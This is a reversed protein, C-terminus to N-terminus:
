FQPISSPDLDHKYRFTVTKLALIGESAKDMPKIAEKFRASSVVTGLHGSSDIIVGVGGPVTVGSIGAIYANAHTGTAGIRIKRTEGMTGANGIYINSDGHTLNIGALSGLAINYNGTQLRWLAEAGIATNNVGADFSFLVGGGIGTNLAGNTKNPMAASGVATNVSGSALIQLTGDGIAVNESPGTGNLLADDGLVTNQTAFCGERCTARAQPAITVSLFVLVISFLLVITKM